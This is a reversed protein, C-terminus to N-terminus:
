LKKYDELKEVGEQDNLFCEDKQRQWRSELPTWVHLNKDDGVGILFSIQSYLAINEKM